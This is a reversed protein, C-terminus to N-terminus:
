ANRAGYSYRLFGGAYFRLNGSKTLPGGIGLDARYYPNAGKGELGLKTRFEGALHEGGTKSIYNFVGGPSNAATISASGGRLAEVRATTIDVRLFNDTAYNLNTIPLGDEQMSLYNYAMAAPFNTLGRTAINNRTEGSSADVFLGPVNKLLDAASTPTLKDIDKQKLISISTAAQLRTRADFVGTVIVEDLSQNDTILSV